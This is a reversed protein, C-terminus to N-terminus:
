KGQKVSKFKFYAIGKEAYDNVYDKRDVEYGEEDLLVLQIDAGDVGRDYALRDKLYQYIEEVKGDSQVTLAKKENGDISSLRCKIRKGAQNRHSTTAILDNDEASHFDAIAREKHYRVATVTGDRNENNDAIFKRSVKGISSSRTMKDLFELHNMVNMDSRRKEEDKDIFYGFSINKTVVDGHPDILPGCNVDLLTVLVNHIGSPLNNITVPALSNNFIKTETGNNWNVALMYNARDHSAVGEVEVELEVNGGSILQNASPRTIQMQIGTLNTEFVLTDGRARPIEKHKQDVADVTITHLGNTIGAVVINEQVSYAFIQGDLLVRFAGDRGVVFHKTVVKLSVSSTKYRHMAHNKGIKVEGEDPVVKLSIREKRVVVTVQSEYEIQSISRLVVKLKHNGNPVNDIFIEAKRTGGLSTNTLARQKAFNKAWFSPLGLNELSESIGTKEWEVTVPFIKGNFAVSLTENPTEHLVTELVINIKNINITENSKPSLIKLQQYVDVQNDGSSPLLLLSRGDKSNVQEDVLTRELVPWTIQKKKKCLELKLDKMEEEDYTFKSCAPIIDAYLDLRLHHLKTEQNDLSNYPVAHFYADVSNERFVIDFSGSDLYDLLVSVSVYHRNEDLWEIQPTITGESSRGEGYIGLSDPAEKCSVISFHFYLAFIVAPLYEFFRKM